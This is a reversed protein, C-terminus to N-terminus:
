YNQEAIIELDNFEAKYFYVEGLTVYTTNGNTALFLIKFFKTNYPKDFTVTNEASVLGSGVSLGAASTWQRTWTIGDTSTDLAIQTPRGPLSTNQRFVYGFRAVDTAASLAVTIWHPLPQVGASWASHWYTSINGDLLNVKPGESSEQTYTGTMADTVAIKTYGSVAIPRRIPKVSGTTLVAGASITKGDNNVPRVEFTYDLKNLLGTIEVSNTYKSVNTTIKVGKKMYSVELYTYNSDTPVTWSVLAGGVTPQATLNTVTTPAKIQNVEKKCAVFALGVFFLFLIKKM